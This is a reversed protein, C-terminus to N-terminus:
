QFDDSLAQLFSVLDQAEANSLNLNGINGGNDVNAAVEAVVGDVDRRNYFEVVQELTDFVGNHMYPGTQAVNRLTPTRFKGNQGANNLVAGLGNDVFNIGDPNLATPLNLFPNNPNAPVGINNFEFNSFVQEGRNGTNHCRRCDARGNFLNLGNAEATTFVASGAMVADFKSSFPSLVDSREFAAIAMAVQEFALDVDDLAADGFVARFNDAYDALRVQEIVAAPSAMNMELQNLFPAQAQLELTDARGDLFQGGVFQVGGRGSGVQSFAPIHSAYGATPANRSGFRGTIAGESVPFNRDPDAFGATPLHCSACSQGVPDSLNEDFYIREGLEILESDMEAVANTDAVTEAIPLESSDGSGGCGTVVLALGVLLIILWDLQRLSGSSDLNTM